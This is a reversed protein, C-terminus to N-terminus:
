MYSLHLAEKIYISFIWLHFQGNILEHTSNFFLWWIQVYDQKQAM